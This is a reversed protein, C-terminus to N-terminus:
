QRTGDAILNRTSPPKTDYRSVIAGVLKGDRLRWTVTSNVKVGKQLQSDFPGAETVLSDGAMSMVHMAIPPKNPFTFTWGATDPKADLVYSTLTSDGTEASMIRVNWKGAVAQLSIPTSEVAAAPMATDIVTASDAATDAKKCGVLLTACCLLAFRRM